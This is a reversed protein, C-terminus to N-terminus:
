IGTITQSEGPKLKLPIERPGYRLKAKTGTTSRVTTSVLRGAKWAIDVEFGGRARLGKVSGTPWAKPLAPLLDIEGAHSQLLMEAIGSCGGFNGDIQFPPCSDFMNPLTRPPTMLLTLLSYAHDGDLLRAWLNIRWGVGWGTANDGRTQLSTRVAAALEPTGRPTIQASPFVGYLHSVHRHHIEPAQMDWDDLWEQLQGAKGIQNPALRARTAALTRRFDADVDLIEAARICNTFLDRIIQEDMTPGACVSVHGPHSNEPSLSPCTVLWKHKAEEVLADLFFEAAGKMTPYVKALLAKDGSFEYHDFLHKCLWAGGSPWFGWTPGDIPATARWLDTNHHCVWGRAGWQIKATKAGTEALDKVMAVLPEVCEALNCPEAPWYNMETNINITYKSSWPPSMSENWIGQLNAPQGGPRSSSILLYRGFQFYLAALQPDNGSAFDKIRADTPRRAAETTGLDLAVRRFLRQHEAVHDSRLAAFPRKSAAAIWNKVPLEPDGSVDNYKRYSTAAAILLTASDTAAVCVKDGETTTQGGEALVRVRAQFKLAGEIGQAAGNVGRLVLTDPGEAEVTARQPTAMGATFSVSAPKDATIRVVIVQDVPSSFVERTFKVGNATYVVRAIATDLDLQRRYNEVQKVAPFSLLLDGVTQYPMQGLPRAMMKEGILKHAEKYKGEFILRRAEPLAALAEPNNPDYPGGGWLTDENLQLCESTIGGFVMAALRGNGVPLAEIWQRAPRRYWLSLPEEPPPADGVLEGDFETNRSGRALQLALTGATPQIIRGPKAVFEWQGLVGGLPKPPSALARQAIEENTLARGYVAARFIRGKFRDGGNPDSGVALPLRTITMPRLGPGGRSAVERGNVYLKMIKKSASYVAAVHTWRDAPLKAAYGCAGSQCLFRLSNGPFTDLMYGESTGPPSKDLIRGGGHGMKDAQVWAELTVEDTLDLAKCAPVEYRSSDSNLPFGVAGLLSTAILCSLLCVLPKFNM